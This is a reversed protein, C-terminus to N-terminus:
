NSLYYVEISSIRILYQNESRRMTFTISNSSGTWTGTTGNDTAYVYGETTAPTSSSYVYNPNWYSGANYGSSGYDYRTYHIVVHTITATTSSITFQTNDSLRLHGNERSQIDAFSLTVGSTADTM